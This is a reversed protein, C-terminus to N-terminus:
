KTFKGTQGFIESDFTSPDVPRFRSWEMTPDTGYRGLWSASTDTTDPAVPRVEFHFLRSSGVEGIKGQKIVQTGVTIRKGSAGIIRGLEAYRLFVTQGTPYSHKIVVYRGCYGASALGVFAHEDEEVKAVIGDEATPVATGAKEATFDAGSHGEIGCACPEGSQPQGSVSKRSTPDSVFENVMLHPGEQDAFALLAFLTMVGGLELEHPIADGVKDQIFLKVIRGKATRVKICRTVPAAPNWEIGLGVSKLLRTDCPESFSALAVTILLPRAPFIDVGAAPRAQEILKDLDAPMYRAYDFGWTPLAGLVLLIAILCTFRPARM